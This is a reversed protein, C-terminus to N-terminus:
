SKWLTTEVQDHLRAATGDDLIETFRSSEVVGLVMLGLLVREVDVDPLVSRRTPLETAGGDTEAGPALDASATGGQTAADTPASTEETPEVEREVAEREPEQEKARRWREVSAGYYSSDLEQPNASSSGTTRKLECFRLDTPHGVNNRTTYINIWIDPCCEVSPLPGHQEEWRIREPNKADMYHAPNPVMVSTFGAKNLRTPDDETQAVEKVPGFVMGAGFGRHVKVGRYPSDDYFPQTFRPPGILSRVFLEGTKPLGETLPRVGWRPAGSGGTQSLFNPHFPEFVPMADLGEIMPALPNRENSSSSAAATRHAEQKIGLEEVEKMKEYIRAADRHAPTPPTTPPLPGKKAAANQQMDWFRHHSACGSPHTCDESLDQDCQKCQDDEETFGM